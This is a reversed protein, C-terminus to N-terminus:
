DSATSGFVVVFCGDDVGIATKRSIKFLFSHSCWCFTSIHFSSVTWGDILVSDGINKLENQSICKVNIKNLLSNHNSSIPNEHGLCVKSHTGKMSTYVRERYSNLM